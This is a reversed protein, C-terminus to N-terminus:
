EPDVESRSLELRELPVEVPVHLLLFCVRGLIAERM